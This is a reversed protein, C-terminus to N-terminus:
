EGSTRDVGGRRAVRRRGPETASDELDSWGSLQVIMVYAPHENGSVSEYISYDLRPRIRVALSRVALEFAAHAGPHLSIRIVRQLPAPRAAELRPASTSLDRRLRYAERTVPDAFSTVNRAADLQDGRPDVRDDFARFPIGFAGDVFTGLRPGDVITWAHWALSDRNGAHWELHRAYGQEFEREMGRRASYAFLFAADGRDLSCSSGTPQRGLLELLLTDGVRMAPVEPRWLVTHLEGALTYGTFCAGAALLEEYTAQIYAALNGPDHGFRGLWLSVNADSLTNVQSFRIDPHRQSAVKYLGVLVDGDPSLPAGLARMLSDTGWQRLLDRTQAV